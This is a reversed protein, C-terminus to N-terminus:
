NKLFQNGAINEVSCKELQSLYKESTGLCLSSILLHTELFQEEKFSIDIVSM